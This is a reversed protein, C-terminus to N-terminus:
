VGCPQRGVGPSRVALVFAQHFFRPLNGVGDFRIADTVPALAVEADVLEAVDGDVRVLPGVLGDVELFEDILQVVRPMWSGM